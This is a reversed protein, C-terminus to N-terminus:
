VLNSATKARIIRITGDIEADLIVINYSNEFTGPTSSSLHIAGEMLASHPAYIAVTTCLHKFNDDCVFRECKEYVEYKKSYYLSELRARWTDEERGIVEDGASVEEIGNREEVETNTEVEREKKAAAIQFLEKLKRHKNEMHRRKPVKWIFVGTSDSGCIIHHGHNSFSARIPKSKNVIGKFKTTLSLDKVQYLRISSDNTTVLLEYNDHSDTSHRGRRENVTRFVLATVKFGYKVKRKSNSKTCVIQTEIKFDETKYFFVQGRFLGVAVRSGDPTFAVATIM